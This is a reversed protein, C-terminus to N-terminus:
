GKFAAMPAFDVRRRSRASKPLDLRWVGGRTHQLTNSIYLRAEELDVDRWRLRLLEGERLMCTTLALEYLAELRQGGVAALFTLAQEPHPDAGM